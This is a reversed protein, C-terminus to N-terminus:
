GGRGDKDLARVGLRWELRQTRLVVGQAVAEGGNTRARGPTESRGEDAATARRGARAAGVWAPRPPPAGTLAGPVGRVAPSLGAGLVLVTRAAPQPTLFDRCVARYRAM